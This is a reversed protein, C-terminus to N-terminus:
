VINCCVILTEDNVMDRLSEAAQAVDTCKVTLWVVDIAVPNKGISQNFTFGSVHSQNDLYDTLEGWKQAKRCHKPSM